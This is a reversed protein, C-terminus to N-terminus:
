KERKETKDEDERNCEGEVEAPIPLVEGRKMRWGGIGGLFGYGSFGSFGPIPSSFFTYAVLIM